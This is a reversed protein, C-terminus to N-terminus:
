VKLISGLKTPSKLERVLALARVFARELQLRSCPDSCHSPKQSIHKGSPSSRWLYRKRRWLVAGLSTEKFHFRCCFYLSRETNETHVQPWCSQTSESFAVSVICCISWSLNAQHKKCPALTSKWSARLPLICVIQVTSITSFGAVKGRHRGAIFLALYKAFPAYNCCPRHLMM